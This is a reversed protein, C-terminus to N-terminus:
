MEEVTMLMPAGGTRAADAGVPLRQGVDVEVLLRARRAAALSIVLGLRRAAPLPRWLQRGEDNAGHRLAAEWRGPVDGLARRKSQRERFHARHSYRDRSRVVAVM